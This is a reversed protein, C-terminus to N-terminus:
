IYVYVDKEKFGCWGACIDHRTDRNNYWIDMEKLFIGM